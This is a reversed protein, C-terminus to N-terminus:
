RAATGRARSAEVVRLAAGSDIAAQAMVLGAALDAVAGAVFLGAAANLAVVDRRPGKAGSLVDLVIRANEQATGGALDEPRARALGLDKADITRELVRGDELLESARCPATTTLEDTGDQAHVVLAREGGAAKLARAVLDRTRDSFVGVLQRRAGAPNMLPGLLNFITRM